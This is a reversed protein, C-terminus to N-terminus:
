LSLFIGIEFHMKQETKFTQIQFQYKGLTEFENWHQTTRVYKM